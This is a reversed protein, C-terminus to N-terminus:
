DCITIEITKTLVDTYSYSVKGMPICNEYLRILFVNEFANEIIGEKKDVRNRGKGYEFKIKSGVFRKIDKKVNSVDKKQFM